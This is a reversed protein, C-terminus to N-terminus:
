IIRVNAYYFSRWFDKLILSLKKICDCDLLLIQNLKQCTGYISHIFFFKIMRWMCKSQVVVEEERELEDLFDDIDNATNLFSDMM